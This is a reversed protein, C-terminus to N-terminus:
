PRPRRGNHPGYDSYDIRWGKASLYEDLHGGEIALEQYISNFDKASNVLHEKALEHADVEVQVEAQPGIRVYGKEFAKDLRFLGRDIQVWVAWFHDLHNRLELRDKCRGLAEAIERIGKGNVLNYAKTPGYNWIVGRRRRFPSKRGVIVCVINCLANFSTYLSSYMAKWARRVEFVRWKASTTRHLESHLQELFAVADAVSTYVSYNLLSLAVLEKHEEDSLATGDSKQWWSSARLNARLVERFHWWFPMYKTSFPKFIEEIDDGKYIGKTFDIDGNM